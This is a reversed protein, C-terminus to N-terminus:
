PSDFARSPAQSLLSVVERRAVPGIPLTGYFLTRGQSDLVAVTSRLNGARSVLTDPVVVLPFAIGAAKAWERLRRQVRESSSDAVPVVGAVREPSSGGLSARLSDSLLLFDDYCPPCHFDEFRLLILATNGGGSGYPPSANRLHKVVTSFATGDADPSRGWAAVVIETELYLLMVASLIFSLIQLPRVPSSVRDKYRYYLLLVILTDLLLFDLIIRGSMSLSVGLMGFCNCAFPANKYVAAVLVLLFLAVLLALLTSATRVGKQLLLGGGCLLEIAVVALALVGCVPGPMGTLTRVTEQFSPFALLKGVGSLLFV